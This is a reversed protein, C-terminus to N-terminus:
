EGLGLAPDCCLGELFPLLAAALAPRRGPQAHALSGTTPLPEGRGTVEFVEALPQQSIFGLWIEEIIAVQGLRWRWRWGRRRRGRERRGKHIRLDRHASHGACSDALRRTTRRAHSSGIAYHAMMSPRIRSTASYFPAHLSM